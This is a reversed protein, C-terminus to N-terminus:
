EVRKVDRYLDRREVAEIPVRIYLKNSWTTLLILTTLVHNVKFGCCYTDPM